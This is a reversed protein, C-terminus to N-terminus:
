SKGIDRYRDEYLTVIGSDMWEEMTATWEADKLNEMLDTEISEYLVSLETDGATLDSAYYIICYGDTDFFVPSYTGVSLTKFQELQATTWDGSDVLPNIVMGQEAISPYDKFATNETNEAMVAAFSEGAELRAYAADIKAKAAAYFEAEIADAEGKLVAYEALIETMRAANETTGKTADEWALTQYESALTNMATTKETFSADIEGEATCYILMARSFGEPVTTPPTATPNQDYYMQDDMFASPDEAFATKDTALLDDYAAQVDAESVSLDAFVVGELLTKYYADRVSDALYAVYEEYTMEKGTYSLAEEEAIERARAEVDITSDTEAEKEATELSYTWLNDVEAEQKATLEATQEETLETLGLEEAKYLVVLNQVLMDVISDQLYEIGAEDGTLDYGYMSYYSMYMEVYDAVEGYTVTREGVEAVALERDVPAVTASPEASEDLRCGAFVAACMTLALLLAITKKM